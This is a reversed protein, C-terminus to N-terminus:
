LCCGPPFEHTGHLNTELQQPLAERSLDEVEGPQGYAGNNFLARLRGGTREKIIEVAAEISASSDLDLM